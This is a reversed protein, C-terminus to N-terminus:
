SLSHPTEFRPHPVTSIATAWVLTSRVCGGHRATCRSHVMGEWVGFTEGVGKVCGCRLGWSVPVVVIGVRKLSHMLNLATFSDLGSTPEDLILVGPGHVLEMAISVRRREGGSIGRRSLAAGGVRSRAVGELGLEQLVATVRAAIDGQSAGVGAGTGKLLAAYRVCEEVSLTALLTDEQPVFAPGPGCRAPSGEM